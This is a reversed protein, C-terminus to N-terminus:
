DNADYVFSFRITCNDNTNFTTQDFNAAAYLNNDSAEVNNWNAGACQVTNSDVLSMFKVTVNVAYDGSDIWAVVSGWHSADAIKRGFGDGTVNTIENPLKTWTQVASADNSLSIWKTANNDTENDFGLINRVYREGINTIVNGSSLQSKGEATEIFVYMNVSPKPPRHGYIIEPNKAIYTLSFVLVATLLLSAVYKRRTIKM